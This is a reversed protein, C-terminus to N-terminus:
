QIKMLQLASILEDIAKNILHKNDIKFAAEVNELLNYLRKFKRKLTASTDIRDTIARIEQTYSM